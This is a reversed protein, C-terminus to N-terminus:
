FRTLVFLTVVYSAPDVFVSGAPQPYGGQQEVCVGHEEGLLWHWENIPVLQSLRPEVNDGGSVM